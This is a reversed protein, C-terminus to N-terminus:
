PSNLAIFPFLRAKTRVSSAGTSGGGNTASLANARRPRLRNALGSFTKMVNMLAPIM